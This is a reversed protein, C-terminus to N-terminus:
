HKESISGTNVDFGCWRTDCSCLYGVLERCVQLIDLEATVPHGGGLHASVAAKAHNGAPVMLVARLM